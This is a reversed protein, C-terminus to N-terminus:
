AHPIIGKLTYVDTWTKGCKESNCQMGQHAKGMGTDVSHGETNTCACFPCRDNRALVLQAREPASSLAKAVRQKKKPIRTSM